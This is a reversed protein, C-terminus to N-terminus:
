IATPESKTSDYKLKNGSEDTVSMIKLFLSYNSGNAGPYEVPITRHIGHWEGVFAITIKESVLAKGDAAIAITDKFDTIRWNRIQAVAPGAFSVLLCVLSCAFILLRKTSPEAVIPSFWM